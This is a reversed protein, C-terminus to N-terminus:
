LKPKTLASYVVVNSFLNTITSLLSCCSNRYSSLSSNYVVGTVVPFSEVGDSVPRNLFEKAIELNNEKAYKRLEERQLEFSYGAKAQDQSTARSYIVTKKLSM